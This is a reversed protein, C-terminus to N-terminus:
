ARRVGVHLHDYHGPVAWLIQVRFIKGAREIYHGAYSGAQWGRIGLAAAVAHGIPAGDITGFDAAYAEKALASHDSSPNAITLPHTASRKLSTVPAGYKTAVPIVELDVISKSGGWPGRGSQRRLRAKAKKILRRLKRVAVSHRKAAKGHGAKRTRRWLRGQRDRAQKRRALKARLTSLPAAM